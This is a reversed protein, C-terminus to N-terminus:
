SGARPDFTGAALAENRYRPDDTVEAGLWPPREFVADANELEIEAMEFGALAGQYVDITWARGAHPILHRTKVIGPGDCLRLLAEADSRPIPYEFEARAAGPTRAKLTLYAAEGQLRIRLSVSADRTLYNQRLAVSGQSALRWSQDKVLFKREIEVAM